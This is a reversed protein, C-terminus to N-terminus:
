SLRVYFDREEITPLRGRTGMSISQRRGKEASGAARVTTLRWPARAKRLSQRLLEVYDARRSGIAGFRIVMKIRPSAHAALHDWVTALDRALTAADHHCLQNANRYVPHEPGGLFWLRLWQDVEYTDMGLYPPSTVVWDIAGHLATYSAPHRADGHIVQGQAPMPPVAELLREARRAIVARIDSWPPTLRRSTWFRVAYDPKPAFTRMMQNSFYSSPVLGTNLPGHLAGLAIGRLVTIGPLEHSEAHAKLLAARLSCLIALTEPHYAYRWFLGQPIEPTPPHEMLADYTALVSAPSTRTLKARSVAVAVPSTDVGYYPLRRERAAFLTTGRGCFPDAVLQRPRAGRLIRQPFDLPFMTYYPCIGNLPHQWERTWRISGGTKGM